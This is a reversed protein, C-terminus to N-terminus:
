SVVGGGPGEARKGREDERWREMRMAAKASSQAWWFVAGRAEAAWCAEFVEGLGPLGADPNQMQQFCVDVRRRLFAAHPDIPLQAPVRVRGTPPAYGFSSVAIRTDPLPCPQIHTFLSLPPALLPYPPRHITVDRTALAILDPPQLLAASRHLFSHLGAAKQAHAPPESPDLTAWTLPNPNTPSPPLDALGRSHLPLLHAYLFEHISLLDLSFLLPSSTLSDLHKLFTDRHFDPIQWDNYSIHTLCWRIENYLWYCTVASYFRSIQEADFVRPQGNPKKLTSPSDDYSENGRNQLLDLRQFIDPANCHKPYIYDKQTLEKFTYLDQLVRLGQWRAVTDFVQEDKIEDPCNLVCEHLKTEWCNLTYFVTRPSPANVSISAGGSTFYNVFERHM